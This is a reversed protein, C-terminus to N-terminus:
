EFPVGIAVPAPGPLFGSVCTACSTISTPFVTVLASHPLGGQSSWFRRLFFRLAAALGLPGLLIASIGMLITAFQSKLSEEPSADFAILGEMM